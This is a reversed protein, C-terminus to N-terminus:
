KRLAQRLVRDAKDSAATSAAAAEAASQRAAAADRQAAATIEKLERIEARLSSRLQDLDENTACGAALVLPLALVALGIAKTRSIM